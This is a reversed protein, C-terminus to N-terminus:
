NPFSLGYGRLDNAYVRYGNEVVDRAFRDCLRSHESISLTLQLAAKTNYTTLVM